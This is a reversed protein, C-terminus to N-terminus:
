IYAINKGVYNYNNVDRVGGIREILDDPPSTPLIDDQTVSLRDSINM